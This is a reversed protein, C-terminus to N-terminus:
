SFRSHALSIVVQQRELREARGILVCRDTPPTEETAAVAVAHAMPEQWHPGQAMAEAKEKWRALSRAIQEPSVKLLNM